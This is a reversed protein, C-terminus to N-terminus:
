IDTRPCSLVTTAMGAQPKNMTNSAVTPYRPRSRYVAGRACTSNEERKPDEIPYKRGFLSVADVIARGKASRKLLQRRGCV